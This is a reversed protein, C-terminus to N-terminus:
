AHGILEATRQASLPRNLYHGQVSDCGNIRLFEMQQVTEVGEAIVNLNLSHGMNIIASVIAQDEPDTALDTIFHSDIKLKNIPFRKLYQLSSYGTGFDDISLGAGMDKLRQLVKTALEPSEMVCTETLEFELSSAAVANDLLINQINSVIEQQRFQRPSLNVAVPLLRMGSASWARIQECVGRLVWDGIPVILGSAEAVPIFNDPLLLGRQPHQWRLLSEVGIIRGSRLDVQPQYLLFLEGRALGERLENELARREAAHTNMEASFFQYNNKGIEKARYMAADACNLLTVGNKGDRPYFAIGVSASLTAQRGGLDYSVAVEQLIREATAAVIDDSAERIDEAIVTFEDGGFRSITDQKRMCAQLNNAVRTLLLDGAQHGFSDNILKFNDLDVFLIALHEGHRAAKDLGHQLRDFFLNRNPLGTLRDHTALHELRNRARKYETIDTGFGALYMVGNSIFRQGTFSYDRVGRDVTVLRAEAEAYGTSFVEEIKATIRPRDQPHVIDLASTELLVENSLGTLKNLYSNWRVYCYQQDIVYFVGPACKITADTLSREQRLADELRRRDTIDELVHVSYLYRGQEDNVALARCCFIEGLETTIDEVEEEGGERLARLCSAAPGESRPFVRWYPAGLIDDISAEARSLYAGNAFLIRFEHDHIFLPHNLAECANLLQRLTEQAESASALFLPQHLTNEGGGM